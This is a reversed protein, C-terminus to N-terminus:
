PEWRRRNWPFQPGYLVAVFLSSFGVALVPQWSNPIMATALLGGGILWSWWYLRREQRSDKVYARYTYRHFKAAVVLVGGVALATMTLGFSIDSM